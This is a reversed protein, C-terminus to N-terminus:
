EDQEGGLSNTDQDEEEPTPFITRGNLWDDYTFSTLMIKGHLLKELIMDYGERELADGLLKFALYAHSTLAIDPEPDYPKESVIMDIIKIDNAMLEYAVVFTEVGADRAEQMLETVNLKSM